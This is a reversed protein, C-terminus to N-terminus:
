VPPTEAKKRREMEAARIALKEYMRAIELMMPRAFDDSMADARSRFEKARKRWYASANLSADDKLETV